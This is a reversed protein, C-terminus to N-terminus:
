VIREFHMELLGAAVVPPPSNPLVVVAFGALVKENPLVVVVAAAVVVCTRNLVCLKMKNRSDGYTTGFSDFM